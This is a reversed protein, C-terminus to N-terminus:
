WARAHARRPGVCQHGLEGISARQAAQVARIREVEIAIAEIAEESSGLDPAVALASGGAFVAAAVILARKM